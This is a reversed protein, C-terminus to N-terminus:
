RERDPTYASGSIVGSKGMKYIIDCIRSFYLPKQFFFYFYQSPPSYILMDGVGGRPARM